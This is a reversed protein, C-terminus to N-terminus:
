ALATCGTRHLLQRLIRIMNGTALGRMMGTVTDAQAKTLGDSFQCCRSRRSVGVTGIHMEYIVMSNFTPQTFASVTFSSDVLVSSPTSTSGPLGFGNPLDFGTLQQARPDSFERVVGGLGIAYRYQDGAKTGPVTGTWTTDAADAHGPEKSLPVAAGGNIRVAVSDVFPAWVRFTTTGDSHLTAGLPDTAGVLPTAVLFASLFVLLCKALVM